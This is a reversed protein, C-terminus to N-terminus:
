SRLYNEGFYMNVFAGKLAHLTLMVTVVYHARHRRLDGAERNNVWGNRWASILSFKLAGRWQGKYPSNVPSRHIGRVFPWYRPFHKWKIVDDRTICWHFAIRTHKHWLHTVSIDDTASNCRAHSMQENCIMCHFSCPTVLKDVIFFGVPERHKGRRWKKLTFVSYVNRHRWLPRSARRLDGAERNNVWGNIRAYILSFMLAGRWQGKHPSNVPSRHIGRVFSWYRSLTEMQHRWWAWHTHSLWRCGNQHYLGPGRKSVHTLKLGLM